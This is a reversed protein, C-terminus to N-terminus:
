FIIQIFCCVGIHIFKGDLPPDAGFRHTVVWYAAALYGQLLHFGSSASVGGDFIWHATTAFGRGFGLYYFTDDPVFAIWQELGSALLLAFRTMMVIVVAGVLRGSFNNAFKVAADGRSRLDSGVPRNGSM